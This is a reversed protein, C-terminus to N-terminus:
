KHKSYVHEVFEARISRELGGRELGDNSAPFLQGCASCKAATYFLRDGNWATPVLRVDETKENGLDDLAERRRGGKRAAPTSSAVYLCM